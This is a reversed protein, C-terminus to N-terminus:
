KPQRPLSPSENKLPSPFHESISDWLIKEDKRKRRDLFAPRTPTGGLEVKCTLMAVIESMRPRQNAHPQLCLFAVHTAQLVDKDVFGNERMRPDILDTLMSREYLKWAKHFM